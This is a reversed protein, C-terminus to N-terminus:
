SQIGENSCEEIVRADARAYSYPTCISCCMVRARTCVCMFCIFTDGEDLLKWIEADESIGRSKLIHKLEDVSLSSGSQQQALLVLAQRDRCQEIDADSVGRAKCLLQLESSTMGNFIEAGPGVTDSSMRDVSRALKDKDRSSGAEFALHALAQSDAAYKDIIDQSIGRAQCLLRLDEVPLDKLTQQQMLKMLGQRDSCLKIDAEMIGRSKCMLKLEDMSMAGMLEDMEALDEDLEDIYLSDDGEDDPDRKPSVGEGDEREEEGGVSRRKRNRAAQKQKARDMGQLLSQLRDEVHQGATAGSAPKTRGLGSRMGSLGQGKGGLIQTRSPTSGDSRVRRFGGRSGAAEESGSQKGRRSAGDFSEKGGAIGSSRRSIVPVKIHRGTGQALVVRRAGSTKGKEAIGQCLVSTAKGEVEGAAGRQEADAAAVAAAEKAEEAVAAAAAAAAAAAKAEEARKRRSVGM